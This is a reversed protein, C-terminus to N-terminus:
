DPHAVFKVDIIGSDFKNEYINRIEIERNKNIMFVRLNGQYSGVAVVAQRGIKGM